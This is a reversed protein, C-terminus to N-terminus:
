APALLPPLSRVPTYSREALLGPLNARAGHRRETVGTRAEVGVNARLPFGAGREGTVDGHCSDLQAEVSEAVHGHVRVAAQERVRLDEAVDDGFCLQRVPHAHVEEAHALVMAGVEGDARGFDHERRDGAAGLPDPEARGDGDEAGVVRDADVLAEGGEVRDGVAAGLHDEAAAREGLRERQEAIREVVVVIRNSSFSAIKAASRSASRVPSGTWHFPM